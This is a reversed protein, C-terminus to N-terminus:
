QDEKFFHDFDPYSLRKKAVKEPFTFYVLDAESCLHGNQSLSVYIDAFNKRTGKLQAQLKITGQTTYVPSKYKVNMRSTVGATRMKVQVYWSAIEDMLTAQIGGHLVTRYGEFRHLPEWNCTILDGEEKFEMQLGTENDPSCGFCNYGPVKTYPNYIKRM